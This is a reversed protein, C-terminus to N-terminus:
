PGEYWYRRWVPILDAVGEDIKLIDNPILIYVMVLPGYPNLPEVCISHHTAFYVGM